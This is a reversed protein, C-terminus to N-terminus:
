KKNHYYEEYYKNKISNCDLNHFKLLEHIKEDSIDNIDYQKLEKIYESISKKFEKLKGKRMISVDEIFDACYALRKTPIIMVNKVNALEYESKFWACHNNMQGSEIKNIETRNEKVESKCEFMIYENFGICWLNDPGKRIMKDPRQTEFGLLKGVQDLSEEFKNAEIGFKLNDLIDSM